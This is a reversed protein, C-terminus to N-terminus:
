AKLTMDLFETQDLNVSVKRGSKKYPVKYNVNTILNIIWKSNVERELWPAKEREEDRGGQRQRERKLFKKPM